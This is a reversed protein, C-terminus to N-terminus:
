DLHIKFNVQAFFSEKSLNQYNNLLEFNTLAANRKSSSISSNLEDDPYNEAVPPLIQNNQPSPTPTLSVNASPFMSKQTALAVLWKQREKYDSAKLYLHQDNAIILDVRTNDNKNV